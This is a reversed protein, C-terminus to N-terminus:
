RGWSEFLARLKTKDEARLKPNRERAAARIIQLIELESDTLLPQGLVGAEIQAWTEPEYERMCLTFLHKPDVGLANAISAVRSLPLKSKGQKFMTIVNPNTFGCADAIELQSKGSLAIQGALYEAVTPTKKGFKM